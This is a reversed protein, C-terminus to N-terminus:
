GLVKVFYVGGALQRVVEWGCKKYLNAAAVNDTHVSLRIVKYGRTRSEVEFRGMLAAGVGKGRLEPVTCVSLLSAWPYAEEKRTSGGSGGHLIKDGMNKLASGIHQWLRKRAYSSRLGSLIVDFAYFPMRTRTFRQRLSPEGGCVLGCVEGGADVAVFVMGGKEIYFKYFISIFRGGVLTM